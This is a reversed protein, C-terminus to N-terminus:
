LIFHGCIHSLPAQEHALSISSYNFIAFFFFKHDTNFYRMKVITAVNLIIYIINKELFIM